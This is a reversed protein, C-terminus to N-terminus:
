EGGFHSRRITEELGYENLIAGMDLDDTMILGEFGLNKASCNPSSGTRCPHPTKESEFCPYWGHCIMMSDVQAARVAPLGRARRADLEERTREIM